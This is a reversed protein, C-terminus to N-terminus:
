LVYLAGSADTYTKFKCTAIETTTHYKTRAHLSEEPQDHPTSHFHFDPLSEGNGVRHPVNQGRRAHVTIYM